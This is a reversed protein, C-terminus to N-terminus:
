LTRDKVFLYTSILLLASPLYATMLWFIFILSQTNADADTGYFPPSVEGLLMSKGSNAVVQGFGISIIQLLILLLVAIFAMGKLVGFRKWVLGSVYAAPLGLYFFFLTVKIDPSLWDVPVYHFAFWRVSVQEFLQFAINYAIYTILPFVLFVLLSKALWKELVSAPVMLFRAASGTKGLENFALGAYLWGCGCLYIAFMVYPTQNRLSLYPSSVENFFFLFMLPVTALLIIYPLTPQTQWTLRCVQIFRRFDFTNKM